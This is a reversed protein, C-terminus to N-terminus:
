GRDKRKMYQIYEKQDACIINVGNIKLQRPRPIYNKKLFVKEGEETDAVTVRRVTNYGCEKCFDVHKEYIASCCYCLMKFKKEAYSNDHLIGYSNLVNRIGNDKSLCMIQRDKNINDESIWEESLETHMQLTLAVIEIDPRSLGLLTKAATKEVDEIFESAPDRKTIRFMNQELYELTCKDKIEEIISNTTYIEVNGEQPIDRQIINNADIIYIM